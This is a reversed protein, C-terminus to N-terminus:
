SKKWNSSKIRNRTQLETCHIFKDTIMSNEPIKLTPVKTCVCWSNVWFYTVFIHSCLQWRKEGLIFTRPANKSQGVLWDVWNPGSIM